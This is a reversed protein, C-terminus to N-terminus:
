KFSEINSFELQPDKGTTVIQILGNNDLSIKSIQISPKLFELLREGEFYNENENIIMKISKILVVEGTNGPDIRLKRLTNISKIPFILKYLNNQVLKKDNIESSVSDTENYGKGLDYFLQYNYINIKDVVLEIYDQPFLNGIGELVFQSDNGLCEVELGKDTVSYRGIQNLPRLMKIIENPQLTKTKGNKKFSISKIIKNGAQTGPDIRLYEINEYDSGFYAVNRVFGNYSTKLMNDPDENKEKYFIQYFDVQESQLEMIIEIKSELKVSKLGYFKSLAQNQDENPGTLIDRVYTYKDGTINLRPLYVEETGKHKAGEIINKRHISESSLQSYKQFVHTVSPLVLLILLVTCLKILNAKNLYKLIISLLIINSIIILTAGPFSARLPFEPSVVMVLYSSFGLIILTLSLSIYAIDEKFKEKRKIILFSSIIFLVLFLIFLLHQEKIIVLLSKLFNQLMLMSDDKGPSKSMRVFNGPSFILVCFGTFTSLTSIYFIIPLKNKLYFKQYCFLAILFLISISGLNEISNGAIFGLGIVIIKLLIHKKDKRNIAKDYEYRTLLHFFLLTFVMSWLYVISGTMWFVTEGIVPACFWFLLFTAILMLIHKYKNTIINKPVHAALLYVFGIIFITNIVNFISKGLFVFITIFFTSVVRGTWFNYLRIQNNYIDSLNSIRNLTGYVFSNHYDDNWYPTFYNLSFLFIGLTIFFCIFFINNKVISLYRSM